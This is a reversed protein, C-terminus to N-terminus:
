EGQSAAQQSTGLCFGISYNFISTAPFHNYQGNGYNGANTIYLNNKSYTGNQYSTRTIWETPNGSQDYQTRAASPGAILGFIDYYTVGNTEWGSKNGDYVEHISPVWVFDNTQVNTIMSNAPTGHTTYKKVTVLHNTLTSNITNKVTSNLYNRLPSDSWGEATNTEFLVSKNALVQKSIFTLPAKGSGNALDDSDFAVIQMDVTGENGLNLPKYNGLAYKEKYTGDDISALIETWSDSIESNNIWKKNNHKGM